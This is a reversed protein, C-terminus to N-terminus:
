KSEKNELVVVWIKGNYTSIYKAASAGMAKGVIRMEPSIGYKAHLVEFANQLRAIDWDTIEGAVVHALTHITSPVVEGKRTKRSAAVSVTPLNESVKYYAEGDKEVNTLARVRLVWEVPSTTWGYYKCSEYYHELRETTWSNILARNDAENGKALYELEDIMQERSLM